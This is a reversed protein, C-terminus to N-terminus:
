RTPPPTGLALAVTAALELEGGAQWAARCAAADLQRAALRQVRKLDFRDADNLVGFRTTWFREAFAAVQLAVQPEHVHALARPLNWLAFAVEYPAMTAWAQRLSARFAEVAAPWRRLESLANGRVNLAQSLRRRDDLAVISAIVPELREIALQHRGADQACVALHYLGRNVAHRNGSRQWGDLAQTHWAEAAAHDRHQLSAITGRQACLEARLAPQTDACAETLPEARVLLAEAASAQRGSRWLLRAQALLARARDAPAADPPTAAAGADTHARAADIQGAAFLLLGLKLQGRRRLVPDDCAAVCRVADALGAASLEVDELGQDLTLMLRVGDAPAGDAAASALAALLNPMELRLAALPTTPPLADAWALAWARQRSRWLRRRQADVPRTSAFERIPEYLDFRLLDDALRQPKLLSHSLLADLLLHADVEDDCLWQAAAADFGGPFVTLAALLEAEAPALQEWSWAIVRHMSAHRPDLPGRPGARALLDLRPTATGSSGTTDRAAHLRQLMQQPAFSRVRSAALEIALPMGELEHVLEIVVSRNREGLYFDARVARARDVFLAVCPNTATAPLPAEREPLALPALAFEQEGDLGLARRSTALVHARPLLALLDAVAGRAPDILQELNDLVLLVRHGALAEAVRQLPDSGATAIRLSALLSDLLQERTECSVLPVFAVVEFGDPADRLAHALEVALRTKGCGGPGLLSVLRHEIVRTRLAAAQPETGFVRTLYAPLPLRQAAPEGAATAREAAAAPELPAVVAAVPLIRDHLAALRLREDAIWEDYHGPLLEGRYLAAAHAHRGERLAQEFQLVDCDLAGDVVRVGARDALLVPAGVEDPPELLQRLSFLAQRLRNRGADIDVGPWLLEILEERAHSRRPQLALRALLAAVSRGGFQTIQHRGNGASLGGLLQVQWRADASM